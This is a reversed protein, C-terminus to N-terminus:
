EDELEKDQETPTMFWSKEGLELVIRVQVEDEFEKVKVAFRGSGVESERYEEESEYFYNLAREALETVADVLENHTPVRSDEGSGYTWGYLNFLPEAKTVAAEIEDYLHETTIRNFTKM